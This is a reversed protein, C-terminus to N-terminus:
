WVVKVMAKRDDWYVSPFYVSSATAIMKPCGKKECTTNDKSPTEEGKSIAKTATSEAAYEGAETVLTGQYAVEVKNEKLFVLYTWPIPLGTAPHPESLAVFLKSGDDSRFVSAEKAPKGEYITKANTLRTWIHKPLPKYDAPIELIKDPVELSINTLQQTSRKPPTLVEIAVVLYRLDKAVYLFIQASNGKLKAEVKLCPHNNVVQNGVM